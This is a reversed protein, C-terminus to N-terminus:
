NKCGVDEIENLANYNPIFRGCNNQDWLNEQKREIKQYYSMEDWKHEKSLSNVRRYANCWENRIQTCLNMNAQTNEKAEKETKEELRGIIEIVKGYNKSKTGYKDIYANARALAQASNGSKDLTEIYLFQFGEPLPKSLSAEMSMLQEMSALADASRNEKLARVSKSMLIDVQAEQNLAQASTIFLTITVLIIKVLFGM